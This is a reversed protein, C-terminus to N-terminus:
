LDGLHSIVEFLLAGAFAAVIGLVFLCIALGSSIGVLKVFGLM